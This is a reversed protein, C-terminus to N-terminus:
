PATDSGNSGGKLRRILAEMEDLYDGLAKSGRATLSIRTNPKNGVFRKSIRVYGAEELNRLQVSLNGATLELDSKVKPFDVEARESSALYALISLRTHEHIVRDLQPRRDNAM